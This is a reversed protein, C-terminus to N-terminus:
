CMRIRRLSSTTRSFTTRRFRSTSRARTHTRRTTTFFTNNLFQCDITTGRRLDYGGFGLGAVTCNYVINDRVIVGSATKGHHECGIEIGYDAHYVQNREVLIDRGGDVYIGGASSDNGYAPNGKSNINFVVNGRIVGNRAQDNIKATKEWGIGVIGINDNDHVTCNTASFGDVNGNLTFSESSGLTCHDVEVSDFILNTLAVKGNTGYVGIGLADRGLGGTKIPTTNAINHVHCNRIEIKDGGGTVFIGLIALNKTTTSYNRIELGQARVYSQDQITLMASFGDPATLGTGDIAVSDTGFNQLTVYGDSANGSKAITVREIYVGAKVYITSGASAADCGKQITKFPLAETGSNADSGDTAVYFDTAACVVGGCVLLAIGFLIRRPTHM